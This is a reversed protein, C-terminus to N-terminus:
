GIADETFSEKEGERGGREGEKGKDSEKEEGDLQGYVDGLSYREGFDGIECYKM